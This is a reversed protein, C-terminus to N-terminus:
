CVFSYLEIAYKELKNLYNHTKNQSNMWLRNMHIEGSLINHFM